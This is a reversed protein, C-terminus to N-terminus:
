APCWELKSALTLAERRLRALERRVAPEDFNEPNKLLSTTLHEIEARTSNLEARLKESTAL